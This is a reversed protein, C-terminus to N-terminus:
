YRYWKGNKYEMPYCDGKGDCNVKYRLLVPIHNTTKNVTKVITKTKIVDVFVMEPVNVIDVPPIEVNLEGLYPENFTSINKEMDYKVSLYVLYVISIVLFVMMYILFIDFMSFRRKM